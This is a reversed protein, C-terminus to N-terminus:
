GLPGGGATDADEPAASLEDFPVPFQKGTAPDQVQAQRDSVSMPDHGVLVLLRGNHTVFDGIRM